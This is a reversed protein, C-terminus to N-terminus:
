IHIHLYTCIHIFLYTHLYYVCVCVVQQTRRQQKHTYMKLVSVEANYFRYPSKDTPCVLDGKGTTM